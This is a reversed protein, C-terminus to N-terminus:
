ILDYKKLRELFPLMILVLGLNWLAEFFSHKALTINAEIDYWSLNFIHYTKICLFALIYYLFTSLFATLLFLATNEKHIFSRVLFTIFFSTLLFTITFVLFPLGSYIDFILGLFLTILYAKKPESSFFSLFVVLAFLINPKVFSISTNSFLSIQLICLFALILFFIFKKM